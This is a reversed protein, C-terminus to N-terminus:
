NTAVKSKYNLKKNKVHNNKYFQEAYSKITRMSHCYKLQDALNNSISKKGWIVKRSM